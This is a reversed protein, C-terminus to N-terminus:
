AVIFRCLISASNQLYHDIIEQYEEVDFFYSENNETLAEYRAVLDITGNNNFLPDQEEFM